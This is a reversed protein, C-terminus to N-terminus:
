WIKAQKSKWRQRVETFDEGSHKCSQEREVNDTQAVERARRIQESWYRAIDDKRQQTETNIKQFREVWSRAEVEKREEEQDKLSQLRAAWKQEEQTQQAYRGM